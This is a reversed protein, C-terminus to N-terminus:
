DEYGYKELVPLIRNFVNETIARGQIINRLHRQSVKHDAGLKLLEKAILGATIEREDFFRIVSEQKEKEIRPTVKEKPRM